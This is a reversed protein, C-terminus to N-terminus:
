YGGSIFILDTFLINALLKIYYNSSILVGAFQLGLQRINDFFGRLIGGGLGYDFGFLVDYGNSVNDGTRFIHQHPINSVKLKALRSRELHIVAHSVIDYSTIGLGSGMFLALFSLAIRNSNVLGRALQGNSRAFAARNITNGFAGHAFADLDGKGGFWAVKVM